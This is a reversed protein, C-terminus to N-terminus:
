GKVKSFHQIETCGHKIDEINYLVTKPQKFPAILVVGAMKVTLYLLSVLISVASVPM